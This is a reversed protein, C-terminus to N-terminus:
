IGDDREREQQKRQRYWRKCRERERAVWEPDQRKAEYRQRMLARNREMNDARWEKLYARRKAAAVEAEWGTLRRRVM